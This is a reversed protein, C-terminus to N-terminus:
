SGRPLPEGPIIERFNKTSTLALTGLATFINGFIEVAQTPRVLTVSLRCVVSLRVSPRYCIAFTFTLERESFLFITCLLLYSLCPSTTLGHDVYIKTPRAVTCNTAGNIM